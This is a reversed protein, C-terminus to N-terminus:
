KKVCVLHRIKGLGRNNKGNKKHKKQKYGCRRRLFFLWFWKPKSESIKSSVFSTLSRGSRAMIHKMMEQQFEEVSEESIPYKYEQTGKIKVTNPACEIAVSIGKIGTKLEANITIKSDGEEISSTGPIYSKIEEAMGILYNEAM